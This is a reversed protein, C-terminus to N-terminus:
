SRGNQLEVLWRYATAYLSESVIATADIANLILNLVFIVVKLVLIWINTKTM